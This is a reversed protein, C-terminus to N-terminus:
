QKKSDNEMKKLIREIQEMDEMDYCPINAEKLMEAFIGNGAILKKTFTGDYIHHVGCSPSRSQLIALQAKHDMAIQFAKEAGIRYEKDKSIHDQDMLIGDVIECPKRPIPLGGLVEPCVSIVKHGKLLAALEPQYNDQGNYKCKNGLLCSSVVIKMKEGNIIM